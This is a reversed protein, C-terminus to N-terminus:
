EYLVEILELTKEEIKFLRAYEMLRSLKKEKSRMYNNVAKGFIEPDVDKRNRILDCITREKDYAYVASGFMTFVKTKGIDYVTKPVYHIICDEEIRSANYGKFVTVEKTFPVRDTLGHLYLASLFSYICRSYRLQFVYYDDLIADNTAYIGRSIKTLLGKEVMNKLYINPIGNTKCYNATIIGNNKELANIIRQKYNKDNIKM